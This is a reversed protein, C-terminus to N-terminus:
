NSVAVFEKHLTLVQPIIPAIGDNIIVHSSRKIKLSEDMQANIRIWAAAESAHDRKMIRALRIDSPASVTIIKDFAEEFRGEFLVAIECIIYPEAVHTNIWAAMLRKIEPHTIANLQQLKEQNSFVISALSKRNISGSADLISEGFTQTLQSIVEPFRLVEHGATDAYFVPVGLLEFFRSVTSKGSGINGTLAVKLM